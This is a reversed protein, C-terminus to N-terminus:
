DRQWETHAQITCYYVDSLFKVFFEIYKENSNGNYLKNKYDLIRSNLTLCCNKIFSNNYTSLFKGFTLGKIQDPFRNECILALNDLIAKTENTLVTENIAIKSDFIFKGYYISWDRGCILLTKLGSDLHPFSNIIQNSKIELLDKLTHKFVYNQYFENFQCTITDVKNSIIKITEELIEIQKSFGEILTGYKKITDDQIEDIKEQKKAVEKKYLVYQTIIVGILTALSSIIVVKVEKEM